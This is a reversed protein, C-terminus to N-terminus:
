KVLRGKMKGEFFAHLPFILGALVANFGLKIAPAGSSYQEIYPDLLVLTFEFFLLFSFFILGEALRVPIAIKGVAFVGAFVLVLFILIGSYQLNNRRREAEASATKREDEARQREAEATEFEHKAELKGIEKSKQENFISDNLETHRKFHELSVGFDELNEYCESMYKHISSEENLAGTKKAQNLAREFYKLANMWDGQLKYISGISSFSYTKLYEDGLEKNINLAKNQYWLATDLVNARNVAWDGLWTLSVDKYYLETYLIGINNCTSASSKQDNLEKDIALGKMFWSLAKRYDDQKKYIVGMNMYGVSMGKRDNRRVLIKLSKSYWDQASTYDSQEHYIMGVNNYSAAMGREDELEEKIKLSKMFWKLAKPYDSQLKYIVGINNYVYAMGKENNLAEYMKMSKEYQIIAQPYNGKVYNVAGLTNYTGSIIKSVSPSSNAMDGILEIAQNCLLTATDPNSYCLKQALTTLTKAKITDANTTEIVRKLSDIVANSAASCDKHLGIVLVGIVVIYRWLFIM